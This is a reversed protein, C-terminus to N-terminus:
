GLCKEKDREEITKAAVSRVYLPQLAALMRSPSGDPCSRPVIPQRTLVLSGIAAIRCPVRHLQLAFVEKSTSGEGDDAENDVLSALTLLDGPTIIMPAILNASATEGGDIVKLAKDNRDRCGSRLLVKIERTSRIVPEDDGYLKNESWWFHKTFWEGRRADSVVIGWWPAPEAGHASPGKTSLGGAISRSSAAYADLSPVEIVPIGWVSALGMVFSYGIRLGTFSGPGQAIVIAQFPSKRHTNDRIADREGGAKVLGSIVAGLGEELDEVTSGAASGRWRSLVTGDMPNVAGIELPGEASDLILFM